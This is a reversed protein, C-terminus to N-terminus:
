LLKALRYIPQHTRIAFYDNPESLLTGLREQRKKSDLLDVDAYEKLCANRFELILGAVKNEGIM